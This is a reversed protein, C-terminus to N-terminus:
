ATQPGNQVAMEPMGAKGISHDIPQPPRARGPEGLVVRLDADQHFIRALGGGAPDVIFTERKKMSRGIKAA